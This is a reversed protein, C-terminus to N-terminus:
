RRPPMLWPVAFAHSFGATIAFDPGVDSRLRRTVGLDLV